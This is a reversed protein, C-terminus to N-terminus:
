TSRQNQDAPTRRTSHLPRRLLGSLRLPLRGPWTNGTSINEPSREFTARHLLCTPLLDILSAARWLELSMVQWLQLPFQNKTIQPQYTTPLKTPLTTPIHDTVQYTVHDTHPRYSPLYRPRSTTPLTTPIHDNRPRYTTPLKTPLTTPVHDTVKTVRTHHKIPEHTIWDVRGFELRPNAVKLDSAFWAFRRLAAYSATMSSMLFLTLTRARNAAASEVFHARAGARQYPPSPSESNTKTTPIARTKYHLIEM